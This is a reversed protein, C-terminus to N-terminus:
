PTLCHGDPLRGLIQETGATNPARRAIVICAPGVGAAYVTTGAPAPDDARAPRVTVDEFGAAALARRSMELQVPDAAPGGRPQIETQQCGGNACAVSDIAARADPLRERAAARDAASLPTRAAFDRARRQCEQVTGPEPGAGTEQGPGASGTGPVCDAPSGAPAVAGSRLAPAPEASPSAPAPRDVALALATPLAIVLVGGLLVVVFRYRPIGVRSM